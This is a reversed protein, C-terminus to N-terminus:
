RRQAARLPQGSEIAAIRERLESLLTERPLGTEDALRILGFHVRAMEQYYRAFSYNISAGAVAGLVPATQAALKQGLVTALRPAVRAILTQLSQGTVTLRATLLGLDAGDDAELPGATAFVRLAEARAEPSSPDLGHEAAIGLITRLLMTITVPLEAVAGPIGAVGGAAGIAAVVARHTGDHRGGGSAGTRGAVALARELGKRTLDDLSGRLPRPLRALLQEASGGVATLIKMGPGATGIYRRALRDITTHVSPDHIPPLIVQEGPQQVPM